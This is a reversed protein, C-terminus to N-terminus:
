SCGSAPCQHSLQGPGPLSQTSQLGINSKKARWARGPMSRMRVTSNVVAFGPMEDRSLQSAM